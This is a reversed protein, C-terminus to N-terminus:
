IILMDNTGMDLPSSLLQSQIENTQILSIFYEITRVEDTASIGLVPHM